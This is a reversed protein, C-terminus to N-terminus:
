KKNIKIETNKIQVDKLNKYFKLKNKIIVNGELLDKYDKENMEKGGIGKAKKVEYTNGNKDICLLYYIKKGVIMGKIIKHEIKLGGIENNILENPPLKDCIISDTDHYYIKLGYNQMLLNLQIRGIATIASAIAINSQHKYRKNLNLQENQKYSLIDMFKNYTVIHMNNDLNIVWKINKTQDLKELEETSCIVTETVIENMGFKGYLSNLLLKAILKQIGTSKSKKEYLVTIFENFIKDSRDFKVGQIIKIQSNPDYKQLEKVEESFYVGKFTGVPFILEGKDNTIGVISRKELFTTIEAEVFGFIKSLDKQDTYKGIGIPLFDLMAKPYSSNIDLLYGDQFIEEYFNVAGGKYSERIFDALKGNIKRINFNQSYYNTFYIKNSLSALTTCSTININYQDYIEKSYQNIIDYLIKVDNELYKLLEVKFNWNDYKLKNYEGIPIDGYYKIDPTIGVYNLNEVKMFSYPFYKKEGVKFDKSLQRLGGPLILCSDRLYIKSKDRKLDISIIENSDDKIIIDIKGVKHLSELCFQFDFRSGNHAYFSYDPYNNLLNKFLVELMENQSNYDELYYTYYQDDVYVMAAVIIQKGDFDITITEFDFVGFKDDYKTEKLLPKYLDSKNLINKEIIQGDKFKIAIKNPIIREIIGDDHYSEIWHYLRINAEILSYRTLGNVITKSINYNDYNINLCNLDLFPKYIPKNLFDFSILNNNSYDLNKLQFALFDNIFEKQDILSQNYLDSNYWERYNIIINLVSDIDYLNKIFNFDNFLLKGLVDISIETHFKFGDSPSITSVNGKKDVYTLLFLGTYTKNKDLKSILNKILNTILEINLINNIPLNITQNYTKFGKIM